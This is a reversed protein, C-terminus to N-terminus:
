KSSGFKGRGDQGPYEMPHTGEPAALAWERFHQDILYCPLMAGPFLDQRPHPLELTRIPWGMKRLESCRANPAFCNYDIISSIPSITDGALLGELLRWQQGGKPPFPNPRDTM